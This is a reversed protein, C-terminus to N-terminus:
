FPWLSSNFFRSLWGPSSSQALTGTGRYALQANAIRTSQITNDPTIDVPRIIGRLRVYEEGQNIGIWKEGQVVLNGNPLVESVTVTISGQLENSQEAGGSGSFDRKADVDNSLIHRGNLTVTDGFVTPDPITVSSAKSTSANASKKADTREVLVVTVVDGVRGAKPDTFLSWATAHHYIAGDEPAPVAEVPPLAARYRDDSGPHALPGSACGALLSIGLLSLWPLAPWLLSPRRTRAYSRM